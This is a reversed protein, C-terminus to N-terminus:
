SAASAEIMPPPADTGARTGFRTMMVSGIAILGVVFNFLWGVCPILGLGSGILVLVFAGFGTTLPTAWTRQMAHTFREGVEAGLAIVGFFWAIALFFIPAITLILLVCVFVTLLGVSGAVFTQRVAYEGVRRLPQDLFLTLLAALAGMLLSWALVRFAIWFPSVHTEFNPSVPALPANPSLPVHVSPANNTINGSVQAKPDRQLEAGVLSINGNVIATDTLQAQGGIVVIDGTIKGSISLNGGFVALNGDIAGALKFNGGMLVTDGTVTADEEITVNGGFVVLSGNLADGSKLTYNQGFLVVDGGPGQALASATPTFIVALLVATFIVFRIVKM